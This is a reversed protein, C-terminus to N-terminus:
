KTQHTQYREEFINRFHWIPEVLDFRRIQRNRTKYFTRRRSISQNEFLQFHLLVFGSIGFSSIFIAMQYPVIWQFVGFYLRYNIKKFKSIFIM